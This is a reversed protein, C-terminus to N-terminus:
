GVGGGGGNYHLHSRAVADGCGRPFKGWTVTGEGGGGGGVVIFCLVCIHVVFHHPFQGNPHMNEAIVDICCM